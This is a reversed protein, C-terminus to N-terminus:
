ARRRSLTREKRTDDRGEEGWGRLLGALALLCLIPVSRTLGLLAPRTRCGSTWLVDAPVIERSMALIRAQLNTERGISRQRYQDGDEVLALLDNPCRRGRVGCRRRRRCAFWFRDVVMRQRAWTKRHRPTGRLLRSCCLRGGRGLLSGGSLRKTRRGDLGNSGRRRNVSLHDGVDVARGVDLTAWHGFRYAMGM